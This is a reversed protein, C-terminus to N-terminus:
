IKYEAKLSKISSFSKSIAVNILFWRLYFFLFIIFFNIIESFIDNIFEVGIFFGYVKLFFIFHVKNVGGSVISINERIFLGMLMALSKKDIKDGSNGYNIVRKIIFLFEIFAMSSFDGANLHV